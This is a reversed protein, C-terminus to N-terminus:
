YNGDFPKKQYNHQSIADNGNEVISKAKSFTVYYEQGAVFFGITDPNNIMLRIDGSPTYQSFSKNEDSGGVVPTMKVENNNNAFDTVSGVKFKALITEM